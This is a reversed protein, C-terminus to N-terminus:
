VPKKWPWVRPYRRGNLQVGIFTGRVLFHYSLFLLPLAVACILAYKIPWPMAWRGVLVQLAVVLPLHAIYIWYSADAVYRTWASVRHCFRTFLGLFGLILGWMMHAYLLTWTIRVWHVKGQALGFGIWALVGIALYLLWRRAIIDLLGPQRHWLWGVLFCYGFLLTTPVHPLLSEKPTDVGWQSMLLLLPVSPLMLGYFTGPGKLVRVFWTDVRAMGRGARDLNGVVWRCGLLLVYLVFLQHLFWLHTLDFRQLFGGSIFFFLTLKWIPVSLAEPPVGNEQLRGSVSAGWLWIMVLVPYLLVWGVALPVLIRQVRNKM